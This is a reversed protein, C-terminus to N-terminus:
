EVDVIGLKLVQLGKGLLAMAKFARSNLVFDTISNSKNVDSMILKTGEKNCIASNKCKIQFCAGCGAGDKYLSPVGATVHGGSLKLALSGYGCAGSSLAFASSFVVAKSQVCQDYATAFSFLFFMSYILIVVM